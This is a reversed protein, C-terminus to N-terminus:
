YKGERMNRRLSREGRQKSQWVACSCWQLVTESLKAMLRVVLYLLFEIGIITWILILLPWRLLRQMGMRRYTHSIEPDRDPMPLDSVALPPLTELLESQSRLVTPFSM